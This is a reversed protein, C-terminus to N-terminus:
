ADYLDGRRIFGHWGSRDSLWISPTFTPHEIDGDWGKVPGPKTWDRGDTSTLIRACIFRGGHEVDPALFVLAREDNRASWCMAGVGYAFFADYDARLDRFM